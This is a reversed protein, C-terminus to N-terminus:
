RMDVIVEHFDRSRLISTIAAIQAGAHAIATVTSPYIPITKLTVEEFSATDVPSHDSTRRVVEDGVIPADLDSSLSSAPPSPPIAKQYRCLVPFLPM